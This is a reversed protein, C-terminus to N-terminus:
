SFIVGKTVVVVIAQRACAVPIERGSWRRFLEIFLPLPRSLSNGTQACCAFLKRRFAQPLRIGWVKEGVQPSAFFETSAKFKQKKFKSHSVFDLIPNKSPRAKFLTKNM